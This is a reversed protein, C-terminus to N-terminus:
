EEVVEYADVYAVHTKGNKDIFCISGKELNGDNFASCFCHRYVLANDTNNGSWYLYITCKKM